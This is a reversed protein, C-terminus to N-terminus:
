NHKDFLQSHVVYSFYACSFRCTLSLHLELIVVLSHQVFIFTRDLSVQCFILAFCYTLTSYVLYLNFVKFPVTLHDNFTSRNFCNRNGLPQTIFFIQSDLALSRHSNLTAQFGPCPQTTRLSSYCPFLYCFLSISYCPFLPKIFLPQIVPSYLM